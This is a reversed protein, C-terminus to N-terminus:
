RRIFTNLANSQKAEYRKLTLMNVLPRTVSKGSGHTHIVFVLQRVLDANLILIYILYYLALDQDRVGLM